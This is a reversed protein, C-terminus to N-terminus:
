AFHESFREALEPLWSHPVVATFLCLVSGLIPVKTKTKPSLRRELYFCLIVSDMERASGVTEMLIHWTGNQPLHKEQGV